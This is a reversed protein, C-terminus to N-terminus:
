QADSIDLTVYRFGLSRILPALEGLRATSSAPLNTIVAIGADPGATEVGADPFGAGRLVELVREIRADGSM